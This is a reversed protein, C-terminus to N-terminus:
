LFGNYRWWTSTSTKSNRCWSYDTHGQLSISFVLYFGALWWWCQPQWSLSPQFVFNLLGSTTIYLQYRDFHTRSVPGLPTPPRHILMVSWSWSFHVVRVPCAWWVEVIAWSTHQKLHLKSLTATLTPSQIFHCDAQSLLLAPVSFGVRPTYYQWFAWYAEVRTFHLSYSKHWFRRVSLVFLGGFWFNM